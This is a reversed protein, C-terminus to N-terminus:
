KRVRDIMKRIHKNKYARWATVLVVYCQIKGKVYINGQFCVQEFDPEVNLKYGYFPYLVSLAALIEGTLAPDETGFHLYVDAKSPKLHRVLYKRQENLFKLSGKMEESTIFEKCKEYGSCIEKIKDYIKRFTFKLKIIQEKVLEFLSKKKKKEKHFSKKTQTPATELVETNQPVTEKPVDEEQVGGSENQLLPTDKHNTNRSEETKDQKEASKQKKVKKQKKTKTIKEPKEPKPFVQFAFIKVSYVLGSEKQYEVRIRLLHFLWNVILFVRTEEADKSGKLQYKVPLFLFVGVLILILAFIFLLIIGIIKLITIIVGAM